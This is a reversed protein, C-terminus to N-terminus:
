TAAPRPGGRTGLWAAAGAIGIGHLPAAYRSEGWFVFAMATFTVAVGICVPLDARLAPVRAAAALAGAVLLAMSVFFVVAKEPSVPGPNMVPSWLAAAKRLGCWAAELPRGSISAVARARFLRDQAVEDRNQARLEAWEASTLRDLLDREGVDISEAPYHRFTAPMNGVWLARGSDTGVTWAGTVSHNRLVWPALAAAAGLAITAAVRLGGRPLACAALLAIAPGFTLRALTALGATAGALLGRRASGGSAADLTLLVSLVVLPAFLVHEILATDPVISYPWLAAIWVAALAARAGGWRRALAATVACAAAGIAAQVVIVPVASARGAVARVAAVLLPYLPGRNAWKEGLDSYFNWALGHGSLVNDAMAGYFPFGRQAGDQVNLLLGAAVRVVFAAFMAPGLAALRLRAFAPAIM